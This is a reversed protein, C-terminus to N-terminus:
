RLVPGKYPASDSWFDPPSPIHFLKTFTRERPEEHRREKSPLEKYYHCARNGTGPADSDYPPALIDLFAAAGNVSHIEHLNRDVPTLVCALSTENLHVEPVKEALLTNKISYEETSDNQLENPLVNYSQIKVTGSLVKLIGYMQPHDHLPIKAGPKLIFIGITFYSDEYIEIYTVPPKRRNLHGISHYTADLLRSDLQVDSATIRDALSKLKAFNDDFAHAAVFNHKSFTQVAQRWVNEIVTVM